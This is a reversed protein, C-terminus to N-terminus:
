NQPWPSPRGTAATIADSVEGKTAGPGVFIGLSEAYALQRDTPLDRRWANPRRPWSLLGAASFVVGVAIPFVERKASFLTAILLIAGLLLMLAAAAARVLYKVYAM